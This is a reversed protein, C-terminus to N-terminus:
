RSMVAGRRSVEKGSRSAGRGRCPERCRGPRRRGAGSRSRDCRRTRSRARIPCGRCPCPASAATPTRTRASPRGRAAGRSRWRRRPLIRGRQLRVGRRQAASRHEAPARPRQRDLADRAAVQRARAPLFVLLGAADAADLQGGAQALRIAQGFRDERRRRLRLGAVVDVDALVLGRLDDAAREHSRTLCSVSSIKLRPQACASDFPMMM